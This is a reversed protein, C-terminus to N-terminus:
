MAELQNEMEFKSKKLGQKIKFRANTATRQLNQKYGMKIPNISNILAKKRLKIGLNLDEGNLESDNTALLQGMGDREKGYPQFSSKNRNKWSVLYEKMSQQEIANEYKFKNKSTQNSLRLNMKATVPFNTSPDINLEDTLKMSDQHGDINLKDQM